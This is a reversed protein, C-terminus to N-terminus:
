MNMYFIGPNNEQMKQAGLKYTNKSIFDDSDLLCVVDESCKKIGKNTTYAVGHNEQTSFKIRKDGLFSEIVDRTKDTSGDDIIILEWNQYTQGIVSQIAEAVYEEHNYSAMVISVLINKKSNESM